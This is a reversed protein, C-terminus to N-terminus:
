AKVRSASALATGAMSSVRNGPRIVSETNVVLMTHKPSAGVGVGVAVGGFVGLGIGVALLVFAGRYATRGLPIFEHRFLLVFFGSAMFLVVIVASLLVPPNPIRGLAAVVALAVLALALMGQTRGRDRYWHYGIAVGLAVFAAATLDLAVAAALIM